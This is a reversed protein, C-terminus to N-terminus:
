LSFSFSDHFFSESSHKGQHHEQAQGNGRQGLVVLGHHQLEHGDGVPGVCNVGGDSVCKVSRMVIDLHFNGKSGGVLVM